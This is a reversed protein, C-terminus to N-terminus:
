RDFLAQDILVIKGALPGTAPGATGGRSVSRCSGALSFGGTPRAAAPAKRRRKDAYVGGSTSRALRGGAHQTLDKLEADTLCESVPKDYRISLVRPFRVTHSTAFAATPVVEAAKIQM